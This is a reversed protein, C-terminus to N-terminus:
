SEFRSLAGIEWGLGGIKAGTMRNESARSILLAVDVRTIDFIM